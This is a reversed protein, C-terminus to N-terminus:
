NNDAFLKCNDHILKVVKELTEKDYTRVIFAGGYSTDVDLRNIDTMLAQQKQIFAKEIEDKEEREKRQEERRVNLKINEAVKKLLKDVNINGDEDSQMFTVKRWGNEKFYIRFKKSKKFYYSNDVMSIDFSLKEHSVGKNELFYNIARWINREKTKYFNITKM